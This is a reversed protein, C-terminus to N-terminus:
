TPSNLKNDAQAQEVLSQLRAHPTKGYYHEIIRILSDGPKVHYAIVDFEDNLTPRQLQM